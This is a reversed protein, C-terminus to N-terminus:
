ALFYRTWRYRQTTIHSGNPLFSIPVPAARMELFQRLLEILRLARGSTCDAASSTLFWFSLFEM